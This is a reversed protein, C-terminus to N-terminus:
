VVSIPVPCSSKCERADDLLRPKGGCLVLSVTANVLDRPGKHFLKALLRKESQCTRPPPNSVVGRLSMCLGGDKACTNGLGLDVMQQRLFADHPVFTMPQTAPQQVSERRAAETVAESEM